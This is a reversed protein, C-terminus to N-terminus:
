QRISEDNEAMIVQTGPAAPRFIVERPAFLMKFMDKIKDLVADEQRVQTLSSLLDLTMVFDALEKRSDKVAEKEFSCNGEVSSKL